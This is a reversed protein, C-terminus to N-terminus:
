HGDLIERVKCALGHLTFPKQLFAAAGELIGLRVVADGTYGSVYLVKLNGDNHHLGEALERGNMGPMVLDTILMHIQGSHKEALALAEQGDKAGLVTYGQSALFECTMKRMPEADEVVLLTENGGPVSVGESSRPASIPMSVRPLYIKFSTGRGVESYVWINGGSQKVIGYVTALGLGTGKGSEKTTFFPEFIRAQTAEDMGVGTDSVALLVYAGPQVTVHKRAYEEDLEVNATEISLKGGRPMADRANVALNMVVQELQGPDAKVRGLNPALATILEIDEGILRQLLKGMDAVLANLDLVVPEVIQKRSFALLQRTLNAAREGAKKIERLQHQAPGQAATNDLLLESYGLIVGLLNNFDHAVGGALHGVAEMKQAQQLQKELSRRDTMDVGIGGLLSRGSADSLPFKMVFWERKEGTPLPVHEWLETPQGSAIVKRDDERLQAAVEPPWLEVDTKGLWHERPAQFVKEFGANVYVMRGLEDKIFAVAPIHDMFARFREEANHLEQNVKTLEATRERVLSELKGQFEQLSKNLSQNVVLLAGQKRVLGLAMGTTVLYILLLFGAALAGFRRLLIAPRMSEVTLRPYVIAWGLDRVPAYGVLWHDTPGRVSVGDAEGQAATQLSGRLSEPLPKGLSEKDTAGAVVGRQDVVYAGDGLHLSRLNESLTELTYAAMLLGAPEDGPGWVPLAVAVVWPHTGVATQYAESVYAQKRSTVGRYWDRYAFNWGVIRDPPEIARLTGDLEYLSAFLLSQDLMLIDRLHRRLADVDRRKWAERLLPRMEVSRLVTQAHELERDVLGALTEARARVRQLEQEEIVQRAKVDMWISAGALSLIFLAALAGLWRVVHGPQAEAQQRLREIRRQHSSDSDRASM